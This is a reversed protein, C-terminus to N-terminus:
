WRITRGNRVREIKFWLVDPQDLGFFKIIEYRTLSGTHFTTLRKGNSKTDIYQIKWTTM